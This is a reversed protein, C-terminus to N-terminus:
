SHRLGDVIAKIANIHSFSLGDLDVQNEAETEGFLLYDARVHWKKCIAKLLQVSPEREGREIRSWTSKDMNFEISAKTISYHYKERLKRIRGATTM